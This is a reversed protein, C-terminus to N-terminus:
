KRPTQPFKVSGIRSLTSSHFQTCIVSPISGSSADDDILLHQIHRCERLARATHAIDAGQQLKGVLRQRPQVSGDAGGSGWPRGNALTRRRAGIKCGGVM